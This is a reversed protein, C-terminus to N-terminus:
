LVVGFRDALDRGHEKVERSLMFDFAHEDFYNRHFCVGNEFRTKFGVLPNDYILGCAKFHEKLIAFPCEGKSIAGKIAEVPIAFEEFEILGLERRLREKSIRM